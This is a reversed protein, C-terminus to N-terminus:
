PTRTVSLPSVNGITVNFGARSLEGALLEAMFVDDEVLLIKKGAGNAM